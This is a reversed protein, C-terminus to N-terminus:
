RLQFPTSSAFIILPPPFTRRALYIVWHTFPWNVATRHHLVLIRISFLDSLIRDAGLSEFRGRWTLEM